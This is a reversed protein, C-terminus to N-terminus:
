EEQETLEDQVVKDELDKLRRKYKAEKRMCTTETLRKWRNPSSKYWDAIKTVMRLSLERLDYQNEDVYNYIEDQQEKTFNYKDLMGDLICQKIRLMIDRQSTMDVELYHCRSIIADLHQKIKSDRMKDFRQNTIFIVSGEFLFSSPIDEKDLKRSTTNWAIVRRDRSDLAAKLLNLSDEDYLVSDCDDFVLIQHKARFEWLKIYLALPTTTGSVYQVLEDGKLKGFGEHASLADRIGFSKGVGPPGSVILGRITGDAVAGAVSELDEFSEKIREIAEEETELAQVKSAVDGWMESPSLMGAESFASSNSLMNGSRLQESIRQADVPSIKQHVVPAASEFATQMYTPTSFAIVVSPDVPNGEADCYFFKDDNVRIRPTPVTFPEIIPNSLVTLIGTRSGFKVNFLKYVPFVGRIHTNRHYGEIVNVYLSM